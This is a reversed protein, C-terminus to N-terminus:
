LAPVLNLSISKDEPVLIPFSQTAFGPATVTVRHEGRGLGTLVFRGDRDTSVPRGEVTVRVGGLPDGTNINYITGTFSFGPRAPAAPRLVRPSPAVVPATPLPSAPPAPPTPATSPTPTPRALSAPSAAPTVAVSPGPRPTVAPSAEPLPQPRAPAPLGGPPKAARVGGSGPEVDPAQEAPKHDFIVVLNKGSWRWAYHQGLPRSTTLVVRAVGGAQQTLEVSRVLAGPYRRTAAEPVAVGPLEVVLRPPAELAEFRPQVKRTVPLLFFRVEDDYTFTGARALGVQSTLARPAVAPRGIAHPTPTATPRLLPTPR